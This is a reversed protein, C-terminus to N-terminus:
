FVTKSNKLLLHYPLHFNELIPSKTLTKLRFINASDKGNTSTECGFIFIDFLFSDRLWRWLGWFGWLIISWDRERLMGWAWGRCIGELDDFFTSRNDMRPTVAGLKGCGGWDRERLAKKSKNKYKQCAIIQLIQPSQTRHAIPGNLQSIM